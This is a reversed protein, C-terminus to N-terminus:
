RVMWDLGDALTLPKPARHVPARNVEWRLECLRQTDLPIRQRIPVPPSLLLTEHGATLSNFAAVDKAKLQEALDQFLILFQNAEILCDHSLSVAFTSQLRWIRERIAMLRAVLNEVSDDQIPAPEPEAPPPSSEIALAVELPLDDLGDAKVAARRRIQAVRRL